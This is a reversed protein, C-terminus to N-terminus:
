FELKPLGAVIKVTELSVRILSLLLDLIYRPQNHERAWDNPDNKIGSAPDTKIQYREMVWEIASRGNVVYDYAALPIGTIKVWPNYQIVTKDGKDPFRMKDVEFKGAELGIVKVSSWPPQTEYNLHLEALARGAKNFAGFDAPKNMLPLRPLMKKLDAAITLGTPLGDVLYIRINKGQPM